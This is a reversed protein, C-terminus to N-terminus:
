WPPDDLTEPMKHHHPSHPGLSPCGCQFCILPPPVGLAWESTGVEPEWHSLVLFVALSTVFDGLVAECKGGAGELAAVM